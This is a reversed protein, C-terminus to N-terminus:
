NLLNEKFIEKGKMKVVVVGRIELFGRYFVDFFNERERM